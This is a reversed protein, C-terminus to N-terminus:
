SGPELARVGKIFFVRGDMKVLGVVDFASLGIGGWIASSEPDISDVVDVLLLCARAYRPCDKRRKTKDESAKTLAAIIGGSTVQRDAVRDFTEKELAQSMRLYGVMGSEIRTVEVAWERGRVVMEFDPFTSEGLPEHQCKVDSFNITTSTFIKNCLSVMAFYEMKTKDHYIDRVTLTEGEDNAVVHEAVPDSPNDLWLYLGDTPVFKNKHLSVNFAFVEDEHQVSLLKQGISASEPLKSLVSVLKGRKDPHYMISVGICDQVWDIPGESVIDLIADRLSQLTLGQPGFSSRPISDNEALAKNEIASKLERAFDVFDSATAGQMPPRLVFVHGFWGEHEPDERDVYRSPFASPM